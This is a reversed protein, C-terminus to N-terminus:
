DKPWLQIAQDWSGWDAPPPLVFKEEPRVLAIASAYPVDGQPFAGFYYPVMQENPLTVPDVLVLRVMDESPFLYIAELEPSAQINDDALMEAVERISKVSEAIMTM